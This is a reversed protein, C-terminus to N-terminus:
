IELKLGIVPVSELGQIETKGSKELFKEDYPNERGYVNMLDIYAILALKSSFQKRYDVRFNLSHTDPLRKSNNSTFEQSYRLYDPDNFVDSHVIYDDVPRGTAYKWKASVSWEKNFQYGGLINFIHPQHFDSNYEGEGDRDDRKSLLYSYSM